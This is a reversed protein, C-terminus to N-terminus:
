WVAVIYCLCCVTLLRTSASGVLWKLGIRLEALPFRLVASFWGNLCALVEEM